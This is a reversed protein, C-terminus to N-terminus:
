ETSDDKLDVEKGYQALVEAMEATYYRAPSPPLPTRPPPIREDAIMRDITRPSVGLKAALQRRTLLRCDEATPRLPYDGDVRARMYEELLDAVSGIAQEKDAIDRLYDSPPLNKPESM